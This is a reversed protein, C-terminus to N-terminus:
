RRRALNKPLTFTFKSGKGSEPCPSEAWIKGGHAEVVRRAISLGLGAGRRDAGRGRYFDDFIYPLEEASIGVGSDMVQLKVLDDEEELKLAVTGQETFKIANGLLNTVVQQLRDPSGQIQLPEEPLEIDLKLGKEEALPRVDEVSNGVVEQVSMWRVDLQTAEIRSIDLMNDILNILGTIRLSSRLLMDRQKEAVEGVFGGLMVQIYSQVAALPAKLDHTAIYLVQALTEKTHRLRSSVMGVLGEMVKYGMFWDEALLSRLQVGDIALVETTQLCRATMTFVHTGGIASWGFAQGQQTIVDITGEKGSGPRMSFSAELAVKGDKIIYLDKAPTGESLIITGPEYVEERCLAAVKELEEDTLEDFLYCQTLIEKVSTPQRM